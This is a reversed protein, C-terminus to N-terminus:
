FLAQCMTPAWNINNFSHAYMCTHLTHANHFNLPFPCHPWFSPHSSVYLIVTPLSWLHHPFLYCPCLHLRSRSCIVDTLSPLQLIRGLQQTAKVFAEPVGSKTSSLINDTTEFSNQFCTTTLLLLFLPPDEGSENPQHTQHSAHVPGTDWRRYGLIPARRNERTHPFSGQGSATTLARLNEGFRCTYWCLIQFGNTWKGEKLKM